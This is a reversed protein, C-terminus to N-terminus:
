EEAMGAKRLGVDYTAEFLARTKPAMANRNARAHAISSYTGPDGSLRRAEALEAAARKAEGKIGYAAALRAHTFPRAPSASRAKELWVIAEDTRSLLLHTMGIWDYWYGPDPDRPSLRMAQEILPITEEISGAILKSMALNVYAGPLNRDIAIAAEYESIAEAIRDQARLVQGKAWHAVATNPPVPGLLGEARAIDATRNNSMQMHVRGVVAFALRSRIEASGPDLTLAREYLGIVELSRDATPPAGFAAARARFMYDVADPNATPRAAEAKVLAVDLSRAIRGTIENQLAFLDGTDGDFREAWLHANTDADILQAAVRVQTGSRQVSGELVYRVGLERGIQKANTPKDKYTFATNRSIVFSSAIRSLDTTLDETIGDAFYQQNRDHSLDNFPLVVISFRPAPPTNGSWPPLKGAVIAGILALAGILAVLAGGWIPVRARLTPASLKRGTQEPGPRQLLERAAIPGDSGNGTLPASTPSAVREVRRVPVVFRYGRGPVTQICSGGSRGHDLVRRLASIQVALNNDEVVTGPWASAMIENKSVVDGRGGILVCLVDLARSGVIVPVSVGSEDQRFLGGARRDLCFGEFLLIDIPALAHM